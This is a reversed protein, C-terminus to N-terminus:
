VVGLKSMVSQKATKFRQDIAEASERDLMTAARPFFEKEEQDVHRKVLAHLTRVSSTWAETEFSAADVEKIAAELQQADADHRRVVDHLMEHKALAPYVEELEGQEHSLLEARLKQWVDRQKEASKANEALRLLTVAEGHQQVLTSFVGYLGKIRAAAAKAVGTGKAAAKEIPNPM